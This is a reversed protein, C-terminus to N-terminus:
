SINYHRKLFEVVSRVGWGTAGHLRRRKSKYTMKFRYFSTGCIDLHLLPVKKAFSQILCFAQLSDGDIVGWNVNKASAIESEYDTLCEDIVDSSPRVLAYPEDTTRGAVDINLLLDNVRSMAAAMYSGLMSETTGCLTAITIILDPNDHLAAHNVVSSLLLRGEADTDGVEIYLYDEPANIEAKKPVKVVDGPKMSKSSYLNEVFPMYAVLHVPYKNAAVIGCVSAVVAAGAMDLKMEVLTRGDTKINQGGNDFSVGKGILVLPKSNVPNEPKYEIRLLVAKNNSGQNVKHIPDFEKLLEDGITEQASINELGSLQERIKLSLKEPPKLSPPCNVLDRAFCVWGLTHFMSSFNRWWIDSLLGTLHINKIKIGDEKFPTYRYLSHLFLELVEPRFDSNFLHITCSAAGNIDRSSLRTLLIDLLGRQTFVRKQIKPHMLGFFYLKGDHRGGRLEYKEPSELSVKAHKALTKISDPINESDLIFVQVASEKSESSDVDFTPWKSLPIM